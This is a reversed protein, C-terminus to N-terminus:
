FSNRLIIDYPKRVQQQKALYPYTRKRFPDSHIEIVSISMCKKIPTDGLSLIGLEEGITYDTQRIMKILTALDTESLTIYLTGPSPLEECLNDVIIGERRTSLNFYSFEQLISVPFFEQQPLVLVLRRYKELLGQVSALAKFFLLADTAKVALYNAELEPLDEKSIFFTKKHTRM